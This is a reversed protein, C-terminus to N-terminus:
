ALGWRSDREKTPTASTGAPIRGSVGRAPENRVAHARRLLRGAFAVVAGRSRVGDCAVISTPASRRSGTSATHRRPERPAEADRLAIGNRWAETRWVGILGGLTRGGGLALPVEAFALAPDFRQALDAIVADSRSEIVDTFLAFDPDIKTGRGRELEAVAFALDRSIHANMGLSLDGISRVRRAVEASFAVAGPRHCENSRGARGDTM